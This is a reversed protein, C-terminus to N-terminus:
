EAAPEGRAELAEESRKRWNWLEYSRAQALPKGLLRALMCVQGRHHAEHAIVYGVFAVVDPKFDKVRGGDALSARLLAVLALSSEHLAARLEDTTVTERDVKEPAAADRTSLWLCRVNHIHAFVERIVRGKGVPARVDWATPDLQELLYQGVRENTEFSQVLAEALDIPAKGRGRAPKPTAAEATAETATVTRKRKPPGDEEEDDADSRARKAAAKPKANSSPAAKSKSPSKSESKAPSM